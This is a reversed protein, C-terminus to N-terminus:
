RGKSGLNLKDLLELFVLAEVKKRVLNRFISNETVKIDADHYMFFFLLGEKHWLASANARKWNEKDKENLNCMVEMAYLISRKLISQLYIFGVELIITYKGFAIREKVM